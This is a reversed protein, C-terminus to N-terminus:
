ENAVLKDTEKANKRQTFSTHFNTNPSPLDINIYLSYTYAHDYRTENADVAYVPAPSTHTHHIHMHMHLLVLVRTFHECMYRAVSHSKEPDYDYPFNKLHPRRLGRTVLEWFNTEANSTVRSFLFDYYFISLEIIVLSNYQLHSKCQYERWKKWQPECAAAFTFM